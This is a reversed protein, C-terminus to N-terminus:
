IKQILVHKIFAQEDGCNRFGVSGYELNIPFPIYVGSHGEQKKFSFVLNGNPIEWVRDFICNKDNCLRISIENKDCSIQAKYWKDLSLPTEIRLATDKVEWWKWGGNVRIHPRISSPNIQIMVYNSLNVARVIIGLAQNAIKFDFNIQYDSWTLCKSNIFGPDSNTIIYANHVRNFEFEGYGFWVEKDRRWTLASFIFDQERKRIFIIILLFFTAILISFQLQIKQDSTFHYNVCALIIASFSTLLDFKYSKLFYYLRKMNLGKNKRKFELSVIGMEREEREGPIEMAM